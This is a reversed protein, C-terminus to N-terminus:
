GKCMIRAAFATGSTVGKVFPLAFLEPPAIYIQNPLVGTTQAATGTSLNVPLYTGNPEHCGYWTVVGSAVSPTAFALLSFAGFSIPTSAALSTGFVVGSDSVEVSRYIPTPNPM